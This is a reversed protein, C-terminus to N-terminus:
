PPYARLGIASRLSAIEFDVALRRVLAPALDGADVLGPRRQIREMAVMRMVGLAHENSPQASSRARLGLRDGARFASSRSVASPLTPMHARMSRLGASHAPVFLRLRDGSGSSSITLIPSLAGSGSGSPRLREGADPSSRVRTSAPGARRGAARRSAGVDHADGRRM